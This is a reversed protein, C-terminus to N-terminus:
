RYAALVAMCMLMGALGLGMMMERRTIEHGM